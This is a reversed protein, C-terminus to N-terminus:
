KFHKVQLGMSGSAEKYVHLETLLAINYTKTQKIVLKKSSNKNDLTKKKKKISKIKLATKLGCCFQIPMKSKGYVLKEGMGVVWGGLKCGADSHCM